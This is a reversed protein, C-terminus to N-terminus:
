QLLQKMATLAKITEECHQILQKHYDDTQCAKEANEKQDGQTGAEESATTINSANTVVTSRSSSRVARRNRKHDWERDSVSVRREGRDEAATLQKNQGASRPRHLSSHHFQGCKSCRRNSNCQEARHSQALCNFCHGLRRVFQRKQETTDTRFRLCDQIVHARNRCDHM